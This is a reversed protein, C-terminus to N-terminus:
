KELYKFIVDTLEKEKQRFNHNAGSIVFYSGCQVQSALKKMYLESKELTADRDGIIFCMPVKIAHLVHFDGHEEMYPLNYLNENEKFDILTESSMYFRNLLKQSLIKDKLGMEINKQAEELMELHLPVHKLMSIDQPALFILKSIKPVVNESLYYILKNCGLSHAIVIIEDYLASAYHFWAKLDSLCSDFRDYVSGRTVTRTIVNNEVYPFHMISFSGQNHTFLFDYGFSASEKMIFKTFVNEFFDDGMGPVFLLLRKQHNNILCGNLLIHDQKEVEILEFKM